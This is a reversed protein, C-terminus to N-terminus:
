SRATGTGPRQGHGGRIGEMYPPALHAPQRDDEGLVEAPPRPLRLGDGSLQGYKTFGNYNEGDFALFRSFYECDQGTQFNPAQGSIMAIYNDLSDHGISYYNELLGGMSPLTRALYPDASPDGFTQSYSHDELPIVWVHRIKPAGPAGAGASRSAAVQPPSSAAGTLLACGAVVAAIAAALRIRTRNSM